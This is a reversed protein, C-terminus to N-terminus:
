ALAHASAKIAAVGLLSLELHDTAQFENKKSSSLTIKQAIYFVVKNM